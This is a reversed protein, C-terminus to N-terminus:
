VYMNHLDIYICLIYKNTLGVSMRVTDKEGEGQYAPSVLETSMFGFEKQSCTQVCSHTMGVFLAMKNVLKLSKRQLNNPNLNFRAALMFGRIAFEIGNRSVVFLCSWVVRVM